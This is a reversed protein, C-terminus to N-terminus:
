PSKALTKKLRVVPTGAIIDGSSSLGGSDITYHSHSILLSQLVLMSYHVRGEEFGM